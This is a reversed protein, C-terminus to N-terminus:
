AIGPRRGHDIRMATLDPIHDVFERAAIARRRKCQM